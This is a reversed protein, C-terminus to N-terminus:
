KKDIQYKPFYRMKRLYYISKIYNRRLTRDEKNDLTHFVNNEKKLDKIKSLLNNDHLCKLLIAYPVNLWLIERANCFTPEIDDYILDDVYAKAISMSSVSTFYTNSPKLNMGLCYYEETKTCRKVYFNSAGRYRIKELFTKIDEAIKPNEKKSIIAVYDGYTKPHMDKLITQGSSILKVKGRKDSYFNIVM